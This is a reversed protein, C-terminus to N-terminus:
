YGKLALPVFVVYHEIPLRMAPDGFVIYTDMLERHHGGANYYLNLKGLLTAPGIQRVGDVFLADYLGQHLYHHGAALGAGTPSWSAVAGKAEARVLSEGVCSWDQGPPSPHIFYGELCTM